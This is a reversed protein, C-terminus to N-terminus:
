QLRAKITPIPKATKPDEVRVCFGGDGAGQAIKLLLTNRGEKLKVPVLDSRSSYPRGVDHRHVEEGNIWVVVGDDSGLALTADTEAAADLYTFGYVVVDNVREGFVDDFDVFFESTLDGGPQIDRRFTRWAIKKGGRGDYTAALDHKQEPPFVRQLRDAEPADFPGLVHWANISPLFIVEIPFAIGLDLADNRISLAARFVGTDIPDESELVPNALLPAADSPGHADWQGPGVRKWGPMPLLRVNVDINKLDPLPLVSGVVIDANLFRSNPSSVSLRAKYHMGLLRLITKMQQQIEAPTKIAKTIYQGWRIRWQRIAESQDLVDELVNFVYDLTDCNRGGSLLETKCLDNAQCLTRAIGRFGNMAEVLSGDGYPEHIVIEVKETRKTPPISITPGMIATDYWFYPTDSETRESKANILKGNVAVRTLGPPLDHVRLEYGRQPSMGPFSGETPGITIHWDRRAPVELKHSIPTWACEGKAYGNGRGDDEYVSAQPKLSPAQTESSPPRFLNLVLPDVPKEDSTKMPAQTPIIAGARVFLPIEDLPVVQLISQPGKYSRGTYWHTWEGPPLWVQVMACGTQSTAPETAPAVLLDDGFMYQGTFRYSEELDPWHYYLPRCLPLSTDYCKRAMTYIYPLLEYRLKFAKKMATFHDSPFAWLRREADPNKTTHTRLIPSLAGWQIWRTYLEPDVKGPQHGGIDHSWYAYGVNGATATFHPQFALSPWNCFTDGSFGIQYRHNGLGGWRSFILPRRGTEKERRIQDTWHLYNLWWLPDLGPINTQKGQQWDMWWFDIGQKELPHHLYKFYADVYDKGTSDFPVRDTVAPDLGMANCVEAFRAEQKGVGEAPHLNLTVKLGQEHVWKLFGDPDPFYQPNWTYGTWGDLHWDMDIVLVDLPVDNQQFQKVLDRLEADSYAWYRSWWAGFVYRPPLPIRGALQTFDALAKPYDNGYVIIYWDVPLSSAQPKLSSHRPTAWPWDKVDGTVSSPDGRDFLLSNSDDLFTWGYRNLLGPDLPCSGSIGDLTRVTGGLNTSQTFPPAAEWWTEGPGIRCKVLLNDNTFRQGDQKYKIVLRDTTINLVKHGDAPWKADPQTTPHIAGGESVDFKPVSLRRNIIVQSARDEFKGDPSWELRVMSPSLLTFRANGSIVVAKPDALPNHADPTAAPASGVFGISILSHAAWQAPPWLKTGKGPM